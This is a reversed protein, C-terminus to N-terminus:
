NLFGLSAAHVVAATQNATQFKAAATKVHFNVTSESVLANSKTPHTLALLQCGMARTAAAFHAEAIRSPMM